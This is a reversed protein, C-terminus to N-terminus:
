RRGVQSEVDGLAAAKSRVLESLGDFEKRREVMAEKWRSLEEAQRRRATQGECSARDREAELDEIRASLEAARRELSAADAEAADVGVSKEEIAAAVAQLEAQGAQLKSRVEAVKSRLGQLEVAAKRAERALMESDCEHRRRSDDLRAGWTRAEAKLGEVAEGLRAKEAELRLKDARGREQETALTARAQELAEKWGVAESELEGVGKQLGEVELGFSDRCDELRAEEQKAAAAAAEARAEREQTTRAVTRLENELGVTQRRLGELRFSESEAAEEATRQAAQAAALGDRATQLARTAAEAEM